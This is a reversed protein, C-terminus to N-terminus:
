APFSRASEHKFGSRSRVWLSVAVRRTENQAQAFEPDEPSRLPAKNSARHQRLNEALRGHLRLEFSTLLLSCHLIIKMRSM